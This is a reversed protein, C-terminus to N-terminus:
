LRSVLHTEGAFTSGFKNAMALVEVFDVMKLAFNIMKLASKM